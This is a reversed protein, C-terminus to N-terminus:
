AAKLPFVSFKEAVNALMTQDTYHKKITEISAHDTIIKADDGFRRILSTCYTNRLDNLNLKKEYGTFKWFHAFAKSCKEWMTKRMLHSEPAIVFKRQDRNQEYAFEEILIRMLGQTIPVVKVQKGEEDDEEIGLARNVKCNDVEFCLPKGDEDYILTDWSLIFLEERRLGTELALLFASKLWPQYHYKREGTSLVQCSNQPTIVSLLKALERQTISQQKKKKTRRSAGVFPNSIKYKKKEILWKIWRRICGMYKNYTKNEFGCEELVYDHVHDAITDNIQDIRLVKHNYGHLSLAECFYRFYREVEDIHGKSRNKQQLKPVDVNNLFGIYQAMCEVMLMPKPEPKQKPEMVTHYNTNTLEKEFDITLKIAEDIDRTDFTKPPRQKGDTGPVAFKAKFRHKEPFKCTAIRKKTQGCKGSMTTTKCKNCYTYLGKIRKNKPIKLPKM